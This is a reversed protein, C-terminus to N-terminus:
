SFDQQMKTLPHPSVPFAVDARLHNIFYKALSTGQTHQLLWDHFFARSFYLFVSV